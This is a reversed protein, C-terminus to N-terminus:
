KTHRNVPVPVLPDPYDIALVITAEHSDIHEPCGTEDVKFAFRRSIGTLNESLIHYCAGMESADM